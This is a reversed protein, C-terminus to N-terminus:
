VIESLGNSWQCAQLYLSPLRDESVSLKACLSPVTQWGGKEYEVALRLFGALVGKRWVLADRIEETLPIQKMVVEMPRDLIADIRSFLGLLFLDGQAAGGTSIAGLMECFKARICSSRILEEPKESAVESLAILSVFRRIEDSGIYFLAEKISTIAQRRKFFASNIYRLLKFSLSVDRTILAEVQMFDFERRNVEAMLQLLTMQIGPIERGQIIEPKSFFYGQFLEFGMELAKDFEQHTEVKEALLRIRRVPLQRLYQRIVEEPTSRFDIKIISALSILVEMGPQLVFDDLALVYGKEAMNRCAAIVGEEPRVTELIEVVTVQQPFLLPLENVLLNATFNIFAQKGGTIQEIGITFFTSSLLKSTATDGDLGSFYNDLGNRFLLEYAAVNKQKDFIPQRALFADM